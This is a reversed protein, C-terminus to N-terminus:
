VQQFREFHRPFAKMLRDAIEADLRTGSLSMVREFADYLDSDPPLQAGRLDAGQLDVDEFKVRRLNANQLNAGRLRAGQMVAREMNAGELDAGHLNAECLSVFQMDAQKLIAFQLDARDLDAGGLNAEALNARELDASKLNAGRLDAGTADAHELDAEELDAGGMHAHRLKAGGLKAQELNAGWLDAHDLVVGVLNAGKLYAETLRMKEAVGNRNLRRINGAIRHTAEPSKWGLFDEIEESYRNNEIRREALRNLWLLVCGIILLDFLMGHAEALINAVFGRTETIYFPMSAPLVVVAALLFVMFTVFVPRSAALKELRTRLKTKYHPYPSEPRNM